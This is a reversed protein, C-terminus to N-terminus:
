ADAGEVWWHHGCSRCEFKLDEYAGDSSEWVRFYVHDNRACQPCHKDTRSYGSFTGDSEALPGFHTM